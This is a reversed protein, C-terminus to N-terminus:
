KLLMMKGTASQEGAQLHYLYLGSALDSGDFAAEHRGAEQWGEVLTDVLRGATDYVRLSVGSSTQLEFSLVTSPNFPNPYASDLLCNQTGLTASSSFGAFSEGTNNWIGAQSGSGLVASKTFTFSSSDTKTAAFTGLYGRYTYFGAPAVAPVSQSRLRTISANGPLTLNVPGLVPGYWDLNPLQVMMWADRSQVSDVLNSLTANYDFIGGNAPVVIPPAVPALDITFSPTQDYKITAYDYATGSGFSGGTVYVFSNADMALSYANDNSSYPGNYRGVWLQNGFADYRVTAYDTATLSGWPVSAGTVYVNCGEDMGVAYAHDLVNGPGNYRAAWLQNGAADYKITAYDDATGVGISGGTVSVSGDVGLALAQAVDAGNGPGNYRAAWLQNGFADYKITAYDSNTNNYSKGTVFVNGSGDVALAYADDEGNAPGNYRATWLQNGSGDYKITAYDYGTAGGQSEGTVYVNGNDDLALAYAYNGGSGPGSYLAVWQQNGSADYKITTYDYTLTASVVSQGTVYVNGNSDVALAFAWDDGYASGNYRAVWLQLGMANYKITAFDYHTTLSGSSYGTVYVNGEGDVVVQKAVDNANGPGDYRATWLLAGTNDYKVTAFDNSTGVGMSKGTVYVNGDQDVVVSNAEDASNGTGNYRAVWNQTVQASLPASIGAILALGLFLQLAFIILNNKM